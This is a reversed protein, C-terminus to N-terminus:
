HARQISDAAKDLLTMSLPINIFDMIKGTAIYPFELVAEFELELLPVGRGKVKVKTGRYLSYYLSQIHQAVPIPYDSRKALSAVMDDFGRRIAIVVPDKLYDLLYMLTYCLQPTKLGWLEHDYERKRVLDKAAQGTEESYTWWVPCEWAGHGDNFIKVFDNDEFQGYPNSPFAPWGDVYHTASEINGPTGMPIGLHHLIGAIASTGSRHQGLVIVSRSM